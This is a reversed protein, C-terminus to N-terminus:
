YQAYFATPHLVQLAQLPYFLIFCLFIIKFFICEVNM